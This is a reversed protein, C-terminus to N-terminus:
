DYSNAELGGAAAGAVLFLSAALGVPAGFLRKTNM